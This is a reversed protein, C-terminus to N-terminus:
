VTICPWDSYRYVTICPWDSYRYVIICQWDSYQYVTICQWDSYQYVTICQWDSYQYVTVCSWCFMLYTIFIRKCQEVRETVTVTLSRAFITMTGSWNFVWTVGFFVSNCLKHTSDKVNSSCTGANNHRWKWPASVLIQQVCEAIVYAVIFM